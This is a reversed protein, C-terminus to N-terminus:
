VGVFREIRESVSPIPLGLSSGEEILPLIRDLELGSFSGTLAIRLPHLLDGGRIGTATVIEDIWRNFEELDVSDSDARVRSAFEALVTRASDTSLVASNEESARAADPDFGFLFAAQSPLQDLRDVAPAFVALLREFWALIVDSASERSPLHGAFLPWALETLPASDPLHRLANV